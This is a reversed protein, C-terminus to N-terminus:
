YSYSVCASSNISGDANITQVLVIYEHWMEYLIYEHLLMIIRELLPFQSM